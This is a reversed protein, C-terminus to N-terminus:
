PVSSHPRPVKASAAALKARCTTHLGIIAAAPEHTDGAAAGAVDADDARSECVYHHTLAGDCVDTYAGQTAFCSMAICAHWREARRPLAIRPETTEKHKPRMRHVCGAANRKETVTDAYGEAAGSAGLTSFDPRIPATGLKRPM